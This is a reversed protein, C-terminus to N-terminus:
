TKLIFQNNLSYCCKQSFDCDKIGFKHFTCQVLTHRSKRRFRDPILLSRLCVKPVAGPLCPGSTAQINVEAPWFPMFIAPSFLEEGPHISCYRKPVSFVMNELTSVPYTLFPSQGSNGQNCCHRKVARAAQVSARLMAPISFARRRLCPDQDGTAVSSCIFHPVRHSRVVFYHRRHQLATCSVLRTLRDMEENVQQDKLTCKNFSWKEQNLSVVTGAEVTGM